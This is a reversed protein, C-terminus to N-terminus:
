PTKPVLGRRALPRPRIQVAPATAANNNLDSDGVTPSTLVNDIVLARARLPSVKFSYQNGTSVMVDGINCSVMIPATQNCNPNSATVLTVPSSFTVAWVAASYTSGINDVSATIRLNPDGVNILAANTVSNVAAVNLSVNTTTAPIAISLQGLGISSSVLLSNITANAQITINNVDSQAAGNAEFVVVFSTPRGAVNVADSPSFRCTVGLPLNGCSLTVTGALNTPTIQVTVPASFSHDVMTVNMPSPTGLSLAPPPINLTLSQNQAFSAGGSHGTATVTVTPAAAPTNFPVSVAVSEPSPFSSAVGNNPSFNCVGGAPLGATCALTVTGPNLFNSSATLQTTASDSINGAGVTVAPPTFASPTFQVVHLPLAQTKTASGADTSSSVDLVVNYDGAATAAPVTISVSASDPVSATPSYPGARAFNCTANPLLINSECALSVSDPLNGAASLTVSSSTSTSTSPEYFATISSPLPAAIGFDVVDFNLNPFSHTLTGDTGQAAFSYHGPTAAGAAITFTFSPIANVPSPTCTSPPATAGPQCSLSM